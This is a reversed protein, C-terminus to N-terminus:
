IAEGTRLKAREELWRGVLAFGVIAGATEFFLKQHDHTLLGYVSLGWAALAGLAILTDMNAAAHRAAAAATRFFRAGLMFVIATALGAQMWDSGAFNPLVMALLVLAATMAIATAAVVGTEPARRGIDYGAARVAGAIETDSGGEIQASETALNVVV